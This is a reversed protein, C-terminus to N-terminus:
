PHFSFPHFSLLHERARDSPAALYERYTNALNVQLSEDGESVLRFQAPDYRLKLPEGAKRLGAVVLRAFKQRRMPTM